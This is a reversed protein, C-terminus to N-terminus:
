HMPTPLRFALSPPQPTWQLRGPARRWADDLAMERNELLNNIIPLVNREAKEIGDLIPRRLSGPDGTSM